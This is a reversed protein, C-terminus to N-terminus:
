RRKSSEEPPDDVGKEDLMFVADREAHYPSDIMRAIRNKGAKKESVPLFFIRFRTDDTPVAHPLDRSSM